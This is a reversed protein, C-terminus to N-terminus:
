LPNMFPRHSSELEETLGLTPDMTDRGILNREVLDTCDVCHDIDHSADLPELLQADGANEIAWHCQTTTPHSGLV